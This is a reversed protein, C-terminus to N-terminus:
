KKESEIQRQLEMYQLFFEQQLAGDAMLLEINEDNVPVDQGNIGVNQWNMIILKAFNTNFLCTFIGTIVDDDQMNPLKSQVGQSLEEAQQEKLAIVEKSAKLKAINYEQSRHPKCTIQADGLKVIVLEDKKTLDLM